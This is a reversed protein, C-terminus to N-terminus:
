ILVVSFTTFWIRQQLQASVSVTFVLFGDLYM